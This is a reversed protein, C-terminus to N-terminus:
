ATCVRVAGTTQAAIFGYLAEVTGWMTGTNTDYWRRYGFSLGTDPDSVIEFAELGSMSLPQVARIGMALASPVALIGGTLESGGTIGAPFANTEYAKVGYMSVGFLGSRIVADSGFASVDQINNDKKLAAGYALTCLFQRPGEAGKATLLSDLDVLDDLDFSAAAVVLKDTATDGYTAKVFKALGAQYINKALAATAAKASSEWIKVTTKADQGDTVYWPVHYQQDLTVIVSAITNGTDVLYTAGDARSAAARASAVPVNITAGKRSAEAAFSTSFGSMPSLTDRFPAFADQVIITDNINTFSNAM